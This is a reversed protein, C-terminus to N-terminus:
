LGSNSESIKFFHPEGEELGIGISPALSVNGM